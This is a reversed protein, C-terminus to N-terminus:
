TSPYIFLRFFLVLPDALSFFLLRSLSFLHFVDPSLTPVNFMAPILRYLINIISSDWVNSM